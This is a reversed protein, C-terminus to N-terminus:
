NMALLAFSLLHLIISVNRGWIRSRWFIWTFFETWYPVGKLFHSYTTFEPNSCPQCPFTKTSLSKGTSTPCPAPWCFGGTSLLRLHFATKMYKRSSPQPSSPPGGRMLKGRQENRSHAELKTITYLLLAQALHKAKLYFLYMTFICIALLM